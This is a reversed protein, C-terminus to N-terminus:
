KDKLAVPPGLIESWVVAKRLDRKRVNKFHYESSVMKPPTTIDTNPLATEVEQTKLAPNAKPLPESETSERHVAEPEAGEDRDTESETHPYGSDMEFPDDVWSGDRKKPAGQLDSELYGALMKNVKGLLNLGEKKPQSATEREAM